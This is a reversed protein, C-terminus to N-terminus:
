FLEPLPITTGTVNKQWLELVQNYLAQKVCFEIAMIHSAEEFNNARMDECCWMGALIMLQYTYDYHAAAHYQMAGWVMISLITKKQQFVRNLWMGWLSIGRTNM